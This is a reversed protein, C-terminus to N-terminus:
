RWGLVHAKLPAGPRGFASLRSYRGIFRLMDSSAEVPLTAGDALRIALSVRVITGDNRIM